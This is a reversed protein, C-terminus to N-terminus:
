KFRSAVAMIHEGAAAAVDGASQQCALPQGRLASAQWASDAVSPVATVYARLFAGDSKLSEPFAFFPSYETVPDAAVSRLHSAIEALSELTAAPPTFPLTGPASQFGAPAGLRKQVNNFVVHAVRPSLEPHKDRLFALARMLANAPDDLTRLYDTWSTSLVLALEEAAAIGALSAGRESLEADTDIFVTADKLAVRLMPALGEFAVGFLGKGGPLLHLNPPCGGDPHAAAPAVAHARWSVPVPPTPSGRWFSRAPPPPQARLAEVFAAASREPPQAALTEGGRTRVGPASFRPEGSGGLLFVSTDGQISLDLVLVTRDPHALAFAPALQSVLSSKGIGGRNSVFATITM